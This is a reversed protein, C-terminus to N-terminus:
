WTSSRIGRASRALTSVSTVFERCWAGTKTVRLFKGCGADRTLWKNRGATALDGFCAASRGPVFSLVRIAFFRFCCM